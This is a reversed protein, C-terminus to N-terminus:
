AGDAAAAAAPHAEAADHTSSQETGASLQMFGWIRNLARNSDILASASLQLLPRVSKLAGQFPTVFRLQRMRGEDSGTLNQWPTFIVGKDGRGEHWKKWFESQM